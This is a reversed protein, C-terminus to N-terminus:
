SLLRLSFKLYSPYPGDTGLIGIEFEWRAMEHFQMEDDTSSLDTM